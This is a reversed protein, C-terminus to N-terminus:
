AIHQNPKQETNVFCATIRTTRRHEHNTNCHRAITRVGHKMNICLVCREPQTTTRPKYQSAQQAKDLKVCVSLMRRRCLLLLTWSTVKRQNINYNYDQNSTHFPSLIGQKFSSATTAKDSQGRSQFQCSCELLLPHRGGRSTQALPLYAFLWRKGHPGEGRNKVRLSAGGRPSPVNKCLFCM